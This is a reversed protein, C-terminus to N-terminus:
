LSQYLLSPESIGEKTLIEMQAYYSPNQGLFEDIETDPIGLEELYSALFERSGPTGESKLALIANFSNEAVKTKAVVARMDMYAKQIDTVTSRHRMKKYDAANFSDYGYLNNSLALLDEEGTSSAGAGTFDVDLTLPDEFTRQYDVDKNFREKVAVSPDTSYALTPCIQRLSNNNDFTDCYKTKFSDLRIIIDSKSGKSAGTSSNSLFRDLSRESLILSNMEGKRESAALSKVRTGFECMGVSPQYDKNAKAHLVQLTRQTELQEKADLMMGIVMVQHTGTAAVQNGTQVFLPLMYQQWYTIDWWLLRHLFLELWMHINVEIWDQIWLRIDALVTDLICICCDNCCIAEAKKPKVTLTASAFIVAVLVVLATMKIAAYKGFFGKM